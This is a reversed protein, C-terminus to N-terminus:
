QVSCSTNRCIQWTNIKAFSVDQAPLTDLSDKELRDEAEVAVMRAEVAVM